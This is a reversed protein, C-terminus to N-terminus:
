SSSIKDVLDEYGFTALQKGHSNCFRRLSRPEFYQFFYNAEAVPYFPNKERKAQTCAEDQQAFAKATIEPKSGLFNALQCSIKGWKDTSKVIDEFRVRLTPLQTQDFSRYFDIWTGSRALFQPVCTNSTSFIELAKDLAGEDRLGTLSFRKPDLVDTETYNPYFHKLTSQQNATLGKNLDASYRLYNTSSLLTDFPNRIIVIISSPTARKGTWQYSSESYKVHTKLHCRGPGLYPNATFPKSTIKDIDKDNQWEHKPAQWDQDALNGAHNFTENLLTNGSKPFGAIVVLSETPITKNSSFDIM